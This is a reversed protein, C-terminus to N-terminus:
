LVLAKIDRDPVIIGKPPIAEKTFHLQIQSSPVPIIFGVLLDVPKWELRPYTILSPNATRYKRSYTFSWIM